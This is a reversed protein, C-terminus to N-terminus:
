EGETTHKAKPGEAAGRPQRRRSSRQDPTTKGEGQTPERLEQAGTNNVVVMEVKEANLQTKRKTWDLGPGQEATKDGVATRQASRKCQRANMPRTKTSPIVMTTVTDTTSEDADAAVALQEIENFEVAQKGVREEAVQKMAKRLRAQTTEDVDGVATIYVKERRSAHGVCHICAHREGSSCGQQTCGYVRGENGCSYETCKGRNLQTCPTHCAGCIVMADEREEEEEIDCDTLFRPGRNDAERLEAACTGALVIAVRLELEQRDIQEHWGGEDTTAAIRLAWMKMADSGNM